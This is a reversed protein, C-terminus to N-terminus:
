HRSRHRGLVATVTQELADARTLMDDTLVGAAGREVASQGEETAIVDGLSAGANVREVVQEPLPMAPGAVATTHSGDTIAAWMILFSEAISPFTGVGGEIGIGLDAELATHARQARNIAGERTEAHGIPQEPVGSEVAVTDLTMNDDLCAQTAQHKIPNNSGLVVHTTM